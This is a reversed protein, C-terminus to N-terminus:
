IDLYSERLVASLEGRFSCLSPIAYSVSHAKARVHDLKVKAEGVCSM